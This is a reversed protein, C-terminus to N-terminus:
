LEKAFKKLHKYVDKYASSRWHIGDGGSYQSKLYGHSDAMFEAMDYFYTNQRSVVKKKLRMNYMKVSHAKVSAGSRVPSVGIVIVEMHPNKKQCLNLLKIFSRINADMYAANPSGVLGNVGMMIYMRDPKYKILKDFLSSRYFKWANTGVEAFVKQSKSNKIVGYSSFGTMISDGVYAIKKPQKRVYGKKKESFPSVYTVSDEPVKKIARIKYSYTKYTKGSDDKYRPKKSVAILKYKSNKAAKRYIEYGGANEVAKWSLKIAGKETSILSTIKPKKLSKVIRPATQETATQGSTDGSYQETACVRGCFMMVLCLGISFHFLFKRFTVM